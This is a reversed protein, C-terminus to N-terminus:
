EHALTSERADVRRSQQTADPAVAAGHHLEDSAQGRHFRGRVNRGGLRPDLIKEGLPELRHAVVHM